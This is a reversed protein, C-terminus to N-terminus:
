WRVFLYVAKSNKLLVTPTGVSLSFIFCFCLFGSVPFTTRERWDLAYGHGYGYGYMCMCVVMTTVCLHEWPCSTACTGLLVLTM